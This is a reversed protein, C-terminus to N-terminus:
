DITSGSDSEEQAAAFVSAVSRATAPGEGGPLNPVDKLARIAAKQHRDSWRSLYHEEKNTIREGREEDYAVVHEVENGAKIVEREGVMAQYFRLAAFRLIANSPDDEDLGARSRWASAWQEVWEREDDELVAYLAAPDEARAGHTTGNM